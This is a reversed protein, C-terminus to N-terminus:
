SNQKGRVTKEQEWPVSTEPREYCRLHAELAPAAGTYGAALQQLAVVTVVPTGSRGVEALVQARVRALPGVLAAEAIAPETVDRVAVRVHPLPM